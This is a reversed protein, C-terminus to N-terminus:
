HNRWDAHVHFLYSGVQEEPYMVGGFPERYDAHARGAADYMAQWEEETVSNNNLDLADGYMHHSGLAGGVSPDHNHRPTRYGSTVVRTSGYGNPQANFEDVWADAGYGSSADITLGTRLLAWSTGNGQSLTPHDFYRTRTDQDFMSCTPRFSGNFYTPNAYQKVIDDLGPDVCSETPFGNNILWVYWDWWYDYYSWYFWVDIFWGGGGWWCEIGFPDYDYYYDVFTFSTSSCGWGDYFSPSTPGQVLVATTGNKVKPKHMLESGLMEAAFARADDSLTRQGPEPLEPADELQAVIKNWQNDKKSAMVAAALEQLTLTEPVWCTLTMPTGDPRHITLGGVRGNGVGTKADRHIAPLKFPLKGRPVPIARLVGKSDPAAIACGEGIKRLQALQGQDSAQNDLRPLEAATAPIETPRESCAMAASLALGWGIGRGCSGVRGGFAM